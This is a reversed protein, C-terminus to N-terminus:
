LISLYRVEEKTFIEYHLGPQFGAEILIQRQVINNRSSDLIAVQNYDTRNLYRKSM